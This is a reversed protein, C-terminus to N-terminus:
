DEEEGASDADRAPVADGEGALWVYLTPLLFIGLILAAM